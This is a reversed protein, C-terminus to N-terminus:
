GGSVEGDEAPPTWGLSILAERTGDDLKVQAASLGLKVLDSAFLKLTVEPFSQADLHIDAAMVSMLKHGNVVPTGKWAPGDSTFEFSAPDRKVEGM